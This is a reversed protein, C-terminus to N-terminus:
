AAIECTDEIIYAFYLMNKEFVQQNDPHITLAFREKQLVNGSKACVNGWISFHRDSDDDYWQETNVPHTFVQIQYHRHIKIHDHKIILEFNDGKILREKRPLEAVYCCSGELVIVPDLGKKAKTCSERRHM